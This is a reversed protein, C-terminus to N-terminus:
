PEDEPEIEDPELEIGSMLALEETNSLPRSPLRGELQNLRIISETARIALAIAATDGAAIQENLRARYHMLTMTQEARLDDAYRTETRRMARSVAKRAAEPTSYGARDAVQRYDLGQRRLDM